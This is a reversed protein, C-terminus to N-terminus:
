YYTKKMGAFSGCTCLHLFAVCIFHRIRSSCCGVEKKKKELAAKEADRLLREQREAEKKEADRAKSLYNNSESIHRQAQTLCLVM